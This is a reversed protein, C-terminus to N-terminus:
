AMAVATGLSELPPATLIRSLQRSRPVVLHLSPDKSIRSFSLLTLRQRLNLLSLVFLKWTLQRSVSKTPELTPLCKNLCCCFVTLYHRGFYLKIKNKKQQQQVNLLIASIKNYNHVQHCNTLASSRGASPIYIYHATM